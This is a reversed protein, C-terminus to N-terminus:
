FHLSPLWSHPATSCPRITPDNTQLSDEQFSLYARLLPISSATEIHLTHGIPIMWRLNSSQLKRPYSIACFLMLLGAPHQTPDVVSHLWPALGDPRDRQPSFLSLQLDWFFSFGSKKTQRKAPARGQVSCSSPIVGPDM